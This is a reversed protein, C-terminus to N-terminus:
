LPPGMLGMRGPAQSEPALNNRSGGAAGREGAGGTQAGGARAGGGAGRGGARVWGGVGQWVRRAGAAGAEM